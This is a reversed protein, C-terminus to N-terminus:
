GRRPLEKRKAELERLNNLVVQAKTSLNESHDEVDKMLSRLQDRYAANLKKKVRLEATLEQIKRDKEDLNPRRNPLTVVLPHNHDSVFNKVAWAGSKEKKVLFKATCGERRRDRKKNYSGDRCGLGRSIISGDRESRRSSLVRTVFGVQTAYEDYFARAAEETDFLMGEFPEQNREYECVSLEGCVSTEIQEVGEEVEAQRDM